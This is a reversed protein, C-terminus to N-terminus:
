YFYRVSQRCHMILSLLNKLNWLNWVYMLQIYGYGLFFIYRITKSIGIIKYTLTRFYQSVKFQLLPIRLNEHEFIIFSQVLITINFIDFLQIQIHIYEDKDLLVFLSLSRSIDM